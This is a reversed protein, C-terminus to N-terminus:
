FDERFAEIAGRPANGEADTFPENVEWEANQKDAAAIHQDFGVDKRLAWFEDASMACLHSTEIKRVM